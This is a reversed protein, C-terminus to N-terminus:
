LAVRGAGCWGRGWCCGRGTGDVVLEGDGGDPLPDYGLDDVEEGEEEDLRGHGEHGQVVKLEEVHLAQDALVVLAEDHEERPLLDARQVGHVQGRVDDEDLEEM